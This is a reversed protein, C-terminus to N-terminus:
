RLLLRWGGDVLADATRLLRKVHTRLYDSPGLWDRRVLADGHIAACIDRHKAGAQCGDWAQLAMAWRLARREPPFLTRPFRGLRCLATLRRLTLLRAEVDGMGSLHYDLRVPGDLLTGSRVEIRICRPGDAILLHEGYGNTRLVVVPHCLARLDFADAADSSVPTADVTLVPACHGACWFVHGALAAPVDRGALPLVGHRCCSPGALTLVCLPPDARLMKWDCRGLMAPERGLSRRLCEWAWTAKDFGLLRDYRARDRWASPADAPITAM